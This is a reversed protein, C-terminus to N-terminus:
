HNIIFNRIELNLEIKSFHTQCNASHQEFILTSASPGDSVQKEHVLKNVDLHFIQLIPYHKM